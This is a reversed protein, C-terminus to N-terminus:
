RHRSVISPIIASRLLSGTSRLAEAPEQAATGLHQCSRASGGMGGEMEQAALELSGFVMELARNVKRAECCGEPYGWGWGGGNAACVPIFRYIAEKGSIECVNQQSHARLADCVGGKQLAQVPM